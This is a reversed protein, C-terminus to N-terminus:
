PWASDRVILRFPTLRRGAAHELLHHQRRQPAGAVRPGLLRVDAAASRGSACRRRPRWSLRRTPERRSSTAPSSRCPRASPATRPSTGPRRRERAQLTEVAYRTSPPGPHVSRSQYTLPASRFVTSPRRRPSPASARSTRPALSDPFATLSVSGCSNTGAAAEAASRRFVSRASWRAARLQRHPLSEFAIFPSEYSPSRVRSRASLM